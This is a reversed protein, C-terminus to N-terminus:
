EGLVFTAARDRHWAPSGWAASLAWCRKMWLHLDYEFTYGIAGHVQLSKKCALEAAEGAYIKAMSVHLARHPDKTAVSHAARYVVPAAFKLKLLADVLHHQVAQFSGIAKGFQRRAKAYDVAMDLVQNGLGLLQAATALMARDAAEEADGDLAEGPGTTHVRGLARAGDVTPQPTVEFATWFTAKAGDLRVLADAGEAGAVYGDGSVVTVRSEGVAMSAVLEDKGSQVLLEVAALHEGLPAPLGVRGAEQLVLVWDVAGMGLGGLSEPVTLGLVGTEALLGWFDVHEQWASRLAEPTCEGQLSERVADRLMLQDETFAFRM